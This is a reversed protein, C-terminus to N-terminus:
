ESEGEYSERRKNKANRENDIRIGEQPYKEGEGEQAIEGKSFSVFFFVEPCCANEEAEGKEGFVNGINEVNKEKEKREEFVDEEFFFGEEGVVEFCREFVVEDDDTERKNSKEYKERRDPDIGFHEELSGEQAL